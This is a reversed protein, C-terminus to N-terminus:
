IAPEGTLSDRVARDFVARRPGPLAARYRRLIAQHAPGLALADPKAVSPVPDSSKTLLSKGPATGGHERQRQKAAEALRVGIERLLGVPANKAAPSGQAARASIERRHGEQARQAQPKHAM